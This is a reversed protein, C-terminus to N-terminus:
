VPDPCAVHECFPWVDVARQWPKNQSRVHQWMTVIPNSNSNIVIVVIVIMIIIIILLIVIVIIAQGCKGMVSSLTPDRSKQSLM